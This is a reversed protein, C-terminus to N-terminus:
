DHGTPLLCGLQIRERSRPAGDLLARGPDVHAPVNELGLSGGRYDLRDPADDVGARSGLLGELQELLELVLGRRSSGSTRPPPPARRRGSRDSTPLPGPAERTRSGGERPRARA